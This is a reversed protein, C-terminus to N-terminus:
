KLMSKRKYKCYKHSISPKTFVLGHKICVTERSDNKDNVTLAIGTGNLILNQVYQKISCVFNWIFTIMGLM